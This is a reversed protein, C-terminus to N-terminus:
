VPPALFLNQAFTEGKASSVPQDLDALSLTRSYNTITDRLPWPPSANPTQMFSNRIRWATGSYTISDLNEMGLEEIAADVASANNGSAAANAAPEATTSVSTTDASDEACGAILLVGSFITLLGKHIKNNFTNDSM